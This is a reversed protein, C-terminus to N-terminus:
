APGGGGPAPRRVAGPRRTAAAAHHRRVGAGRRAAVLAVQEAGVRAGAGGDGAEGGAGRGDAPERGQGGGGEAGGGEGGGPGDGGEGGRGGRRAGQPHGVERRRGREGDGARRGARGREGCDDRAGGQGRADGGCPGGVGGGGAEGGCVQRRLAAGGGGGGGGPRGDRRHGGGDGGGAAPRPGAGRPPAVGRVGGGGQREGREGGGRRDRHRRPAGAGGLQAGGGGGERGGRGAAGRRRRARAIPLTPPASPLSDAFGPIQTRVARAHSQPAGAGEAGDIPKVQAHQGRMRPHDFDRAAKRAASIVEEPTGGDAVANRAGMRAAWLAHEDDRTVEPERASPAAAEAATPAPADDDAATLRLKALEQAVLKKVEDEIGAMLQKHMAHLPTGNAEADLDPPPEARADEPPPAAVLLDSAAVALVSQVPSGKVAPEAAGARAPPAEPVVAIAGVAVAPAEENFQVKKFSEVRGGAEQPKTVAAPQSHRAEPPEVKRSAPAAAGRGLRAQLDDARAREQDARERASEAEAKWRSAEGKAADREGRLQSAEAELREVAGQLAERGGELEAIRAQQTEVQHALERSVERAERGEVELSSIQPRYQAEISHAIEAIEAELSENKTETYTLRRDLGSVVWLPVTRGFRLRERELGYEALRSRLDTIHARQDSVHERLAANEEHLAHASHSLTRYLESQRPPNHGRPSFEVGRPPAQQWVDRQALAAQYLERQRQESSSAMEVAIAKNSLVPAEPLGMGSLILQLTDFKSERNAPASHPRAAGDFTPSRSRSPSTARHEALTTASKYSVGPVLALTPVSPSTPM